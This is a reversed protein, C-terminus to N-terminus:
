NNKSEEMEVKSKKSSIKVNQIFPTLVAGILVFVLGFIFVGHLADVLTSKLIPVMTDSIPKPIQKMTEANLLTSYLGQPETKIMSEFKQVMGHAQAPLKELFPVLQETLLNTSKHNVVAGLITMGFTGGIQRFFQSSSTVVGLESKPFTEQLALTITPM